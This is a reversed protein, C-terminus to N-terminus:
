FPYKMFLHIAALESSASPKTLSDAAAADSQLKVETPRVSLNRASQVVSLVMATGCPM